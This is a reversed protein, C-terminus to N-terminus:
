QSHIGGGRVQIDHIPRLQTVGAMQSAQYGSDTALCCYLFCGTVFVRFKGRSWRLAHLIGVRKQCM